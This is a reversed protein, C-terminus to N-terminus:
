CWRLTFITADKHNKFWFNWYGYWSFSYWMDDNDIKHQEVEVRGTGINKECWTMMQIFQDPIALQRDRPLKVNTWGFKELALEALHRENPVVRHEQTMM